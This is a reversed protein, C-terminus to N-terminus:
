LNKLADNLYNKPNTIKNNEKIELHLHSGTVRGTSGVKGILDGKRVLQGKRSLIVDLHAYRSKLTESHNIEVLNGYAEKKGTFTIFGNAIAFVNSGKKAAIDLGSHHRISGNIPDRRKGYGSSIYGSELPTSFDYNPSKSVSKSPLNSSLSLRELYKEAEKVELTALLNKLKLKQKEVGIEINKVSKKLDSDRVVSSGFYSSTRAGGRAPKNKLNFKDIDLKSKSALAGNLINLRQVEADLVSLKYIVRQFNAFAKDDNKSSLAQSPSSTSIIKLFAVAAVVILVPFIIHLLLDIKLKKHHNGNDSILIVKM